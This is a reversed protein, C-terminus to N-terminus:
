SNCLIGVLYVLVCKFFLLHSSMLPVPAASIFVQNWLSFPILKLIETGLGRYHIKLSVGSDVNPVSCSKLYIFSYVNGQNHFCKIELCPSFNM